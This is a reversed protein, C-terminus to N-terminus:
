LIFIYAKRMINTRGTCQIDNSFPQKGLEHWDPREKAYCRQCAYAATIQRCQKSGGLIM